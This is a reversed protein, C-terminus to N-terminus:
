LVANALRKRSDIRNREFINTVDSIGKLELDASFFHDPCLEFFVARDQRDPPIQKQNDITVPM